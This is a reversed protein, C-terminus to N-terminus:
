RNLERLKRYVEVDTREVTMPTISILGDQVADIDYEGKGSGDYSREGISAKVMNGELPVFCDVYEYMGQRTIKIGKPELPININYLNNVSFLQHDMVYAYIEDMIEDTRSIVSEYYPKKTSVALTKVGRVAAEFAAGATGSYLIDRGINYGRNIGSLVLDVQEGVGDLAYRVCDAPTADVSYGMIGPVPECKKVEFSDRIQISHSKGSQEVKPAAIVVEGLKQAWKALALIGPAQIGDDNVILIRM